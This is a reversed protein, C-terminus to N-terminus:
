NMWRSKLAIGPSMRHRVTTIEIQGFYKEKMVFHRLTLMQHFVHFASLTLFLDTHFPIFCEM